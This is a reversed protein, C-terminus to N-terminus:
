QSAVSEVIFMFLETVLSKEVGCRFTLVRIGMVGNGEIVASNCGATEEKLSTLRRGTSHGHLSVPRRNPAPM